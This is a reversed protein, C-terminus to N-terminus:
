YKMLERADEEQRKNHEAENSYWRCKISGNKSTYEHLPEHTDDVHMFEENTTMVMDYMKYIYRETDYDFVLSQNAVDIDKNTYIYKVLSQNYAKLMAKVEDFIQMNTRTLLMNPTITYTFSDIMSSITDCDEDLIKEVQSIADFLNDPYISIGTFREDSKDPESWVMQRSTSVNCISDLEFEGIMCKINDHMDQELKLMQEDLKGM